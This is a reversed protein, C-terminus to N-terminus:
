RVIYLLAAGVAMSALGVGRLVRDEVTTMQRMAEKWRHPALFPMVGEFVLVLCLATLLDRWQM